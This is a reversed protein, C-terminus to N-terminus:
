RHHSRRSAPTGGFFDLSMYGQITDEDNKKRSDLWLRTQRDSFDTRGANGDSNGPDGVPITSPLFEDESGIADFGYMADLKVLGGLKIWSSETDPIKWFGSFEGPKGDDTPSAEDAGVGACDLVM